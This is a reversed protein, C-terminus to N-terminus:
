IKDIDIGITIAGIVKGGDRVPVSVQVLYAQASEDFKVDSIHVAGAGGKYSETFKDEDGQWYDSTKDSMCVNAGQNDMVFLEAYMKSSDMMEQLYKACANEMLATMFADVGVTARWKKDIDKITDLSAGQANQAKVADVIVPNSGVAMLKSNALDVVKQPAKEGAFAVSVVLLCIGAILLTFSLRKM